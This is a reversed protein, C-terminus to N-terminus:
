GACTDDVAIKPVQDAVDTAAPNAETFTVSCDTGTYGDPIYVINGTGPTGTFGDEDIAAGIGAATALAYGNATTTVTGGEVNVTTGTGGGALWVSHVIASASKISGALGQVAAARANSGLDAFKPLAFAALVGLIVIVMILEIMTFGSQQKKM